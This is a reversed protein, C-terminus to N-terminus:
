ASTHEQLRFPRFGVALMGCAGCRRKRLGVSLPLRVANDDWMPGGPSDLDIMHSFYLMKKIKLFLTNDVGSETGGDGGWFFVIVIFKQHTVFIQQSCFM